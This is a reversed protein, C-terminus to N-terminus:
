QDRVAGSPRPREGAATTTPVVACGSTLRAIVPAFTRHSGGWPTPLSPNDARPEEVGSGDRRTWKPAETDNMPVITGQGM